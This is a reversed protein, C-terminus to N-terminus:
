SGTESHEELHKHLTAIRGYLSKADPHAGLLAYYFTIAREAADTRKCAAVYSSNLYRDEPEVRLFEELLPIAEEEKGGKAMAFVQKKQVKEQGGQANISAYVKVAEEERGAKKLLSAYIERYIQPLSGIRAMRGMRVLEADLGNRKIEVETRQWLAASDDPRLKLLRSSAEVAEEYKGVGALAKAQWGLRDPEEMGLSSIRDLISEWQHMAALCGLVGKRGKAALRPERLLEEYRVLADDFRRLGVLADAETAVAFLEDPRLALAEEAAELARGFDSLRILARAMQTLWFERREDPKTSESEALAAADAFRRDSMLAQYEPFSGTRM